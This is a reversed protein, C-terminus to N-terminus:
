KEFGVPFPFPYAKKVVAYRGPSIYVLLPAEQLVAQDDVESRRLADHHVHAAVIRGALLSNTGFGDVVRELECELMLYADALFLGDVVEAPVTPLADLTSKRGQRDERAAASLGALVVQTPRPFSATFTGYRKANHYTAHRPTCVFGFHNHWGLPAAMHKPALNYGEGEQTGVVVLPAVTFFREWIPRATDLTVFAESNFSRVDM